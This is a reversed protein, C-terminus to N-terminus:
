DHACVASGCRVRIVQRQEHSQRVIIGPPKDVGSKASTQQLGYWELFPCVIVRWESNPQTLKVIAMPLEPLPEAFIFERKVKLIYRGIFASHRIAAMEQLRAWLRAEHLVEDTLQAAWVRVDSKAAPNKRDNRAFVFV